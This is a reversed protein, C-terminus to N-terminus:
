DQSLRNGLKVEFCGSAEFRYNYLISFYPTLVFMTSFIANHFSMCFPVIQLFMCTMNNQYFFVEHILNCLMMLDDNLVYPSVEIKKLMLAYKCRLWFNCM